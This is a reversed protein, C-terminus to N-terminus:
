SKPSFEHIVERFYRIEERPSLSMTIASGVVVIEPLLVNLVRALNDRKLGGAVMFSFSEQLFPSGQMVEEWSRGIRVQDSALHLALYDPSITRLKQIDEESPHLCDITDVVLKAGYKQCAEKAEQLTAFSAGALVSVLDAGSELIMETEYRGADVIKADVFIPKELCAKKLKRVVRLGYRLLLPTGVELIDIEEQLLDALWRAKEFSLTDLALQLLM